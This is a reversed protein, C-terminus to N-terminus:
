NKIKIFIEETFPIGKITIGELNVRYSTPIDSAYFSVNGEGNENLKVNPNWYITSRFDPQM